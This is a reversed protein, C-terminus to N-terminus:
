GALAVGFPTRSRTLTDIAGQAAPEHARTRGVVLLVGDATRALAQAEGARAAPMEIVILDSTRRLHAVLQAFIPTFLVQAPERVPHSAALVFANSRPDMRLARSLPVKGALVEVLGAGNPVLGMAAASMPTRLDCDLLLAKRGTLAAARTLAVALVTHSDRPDAGTVVVVRGKMGAPLVRRLLNQVAVSFASQPWDIIYDAAKRDSANPVDALLRPSPSSAAMAPQRLARPEAPAYSVVRSRVPEDSFREALLAFLLGLLFGAPISAAFILSRPPFSPASPVPAHSIVHADAAQIGDQGQTERLRAVFSDYISRTSVVSAELAKLKVRILSQATAEYETRALDTSLSAVEGRAVAVDSGLSKAMRAEEAAIKAELDRLQQKAAILKPHLAGYRTQLDSEDKVLGAEQERLQEIVPSSMVESMEGANGTGLATSHANAAEKQALDARAELLQTTISQLQQDILPTGDAAETLHYQAKYQEAAAEAAQEQQALVQIRSTLWDVTKAAADRKAQLQDDIYADVIANAIRSAKEPSASSFTVTISTSLGESAVSLRREFAAIVGDRLQEPDGAGGTPVLSWGAFSFHSPTGGFEPDDYLGLKGIVEAALDRSSLIRIQNQLSAPDTPLASLVASQDAVNNKRTDITIEASTAYRTPLILLIAITLVVVAAMVLLILSFRKEIVALLDGLTFSPQPAERAPTSDDTTRGVSMTL